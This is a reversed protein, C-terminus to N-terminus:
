KVEVGVHSKRVRIHSSFHSGISPAAMMQAYQEPSVSPYEFKRGGIFQVGLVQRLPDYAVSALNSSKIPQYNM